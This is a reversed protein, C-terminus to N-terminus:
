YVFQLISYIRGYYNKLYKEYLCQENLTLAYTSVLLSPQDLPLTVLTLNSLLSPYREQVRFQLMDWTSHLPEDTRLSYVHGEVMGLRSVGGVAVVVVAEAFKFPNKVVMGAWRKSQSVISFTIM